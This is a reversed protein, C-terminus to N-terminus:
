EFSINREDCEGCEITEDSWKGSSQCIREMSSGETFTYNSNCTYDAESGKLTGYLTFVNGNEPVPAPGCDM